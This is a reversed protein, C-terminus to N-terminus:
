SSQHIKLNCPLRITISFFFLSVKMDGARKGFKQTLLSLSDITAKPEPPYLGIEAFADRIRVCDFRKINHGAWIRGVSVGFDVGIAGYSLSFSLSLSVSVHNGHLIEYVDDAIESFTPASLVGDRTIGSRRKSLTAILSLDTPRVLTTYSYLEVLKRPCVLIAGFELIAFPQGSKAPFATELDFFAIESREDGGGGLTSAAM